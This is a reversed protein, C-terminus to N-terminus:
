RMCHLVPHLRQAQLRVQWRQQKLELRQALVQRPLSVLLVQPAQRRLLALLPLLALQEPLALLVLSVLRQVQALLPVRVLRSWAL